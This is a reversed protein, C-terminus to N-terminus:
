GLLGVGVKSEPKQSSQSAWSPVPLIAWSWAARNGGVATGPVHRHVCVRAHVCVCVRAHVCVCVCACVCVRQKCEVAMSRNDM